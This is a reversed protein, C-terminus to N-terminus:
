EVKEWSVPNAPDGDLYRYGDIIEGPKPPPPPAATQQQAQQPVGSGASYTQWAQLARQQFTPDAMIDAVSREGYSESMVNEAEAKALDFAFQQFSKPKTFLSSLGRGSGSLRKERDEVAKTRRSALGFKREEMEARSAAAEREAKQASARGAAAGAQGLSQGLQGGFGSYTPQMMNIGFQLLAAQVEPQKLADTFGGSQPQPQPANRAQPQEAPPQGMGGPAPYGIGAPM